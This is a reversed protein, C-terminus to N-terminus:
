FWMQIVANAARNKAGHLRAQLNSRTVIGVVSGNKGLVCLTRLGLATFLTYAKSLPTNHAVTYAGRNMAAAVDVLRNRESESLKVVLNGNDDYDVVTKGGKPISGDPMIDDSGILVSAGGPTRLINDNFWTNRSSLQSEAETSYEHYTDDDRVLAHEIDLEKASQMVERIKATKSRSMDTMDVYIGCELLAVLQDRGNTVLKRSAM